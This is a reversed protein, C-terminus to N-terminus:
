SSLIRFILGIQWIFDTIILVIHIDYHLFFSKFALNAGKRVHLELSIGNLYKLSAIFFM